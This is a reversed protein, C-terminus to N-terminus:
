CSSFNELFCREGNERLVYGEIFHELRYYHLSAHQQALQNMSHSLYYHLALRPFGSTCSLASRGTGRAGGAGCETIVKQM